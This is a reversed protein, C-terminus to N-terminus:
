AVDVFGKMAAFNLATWHDKDQANVDVRSNTLLLQVVNLHSTAAASILPTRQSRDRENPDVRSDALLLQVVDLHSSQAASILPTQQSGDRANSRSSSRRPSSAGRGCLREICHRQACTQWCNRSLRFM